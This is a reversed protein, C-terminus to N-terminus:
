SAYLPFSVRKCANPVAAAEAVSRGRKRRRSPLPTYSSSSPAAAAVAAASQAQAAAAVLAHAHAHVHAAVQAQAQAMVAAMGWQQAVTAADAVPGTISSPHIQSLPSLFPLSLPLGGSTPFPPLLSRSIPQTGPPPAPHIERPNLASRPSPAPQRSPRGQGRRNGGRLSSTTTIGVGAITAGGQAAAIREKGSGDVRFGRVNKSSADLIVEGTKGEVQPNGTVGRSGKGAVRAEKAAERMADHPGGMAIAASKTLPPTTSTSTTTATTSATTGTVCTIPMVPLSSRGSARTGSASHPGGTSGDLMIMISEAAELRHEESGTSSTTTSTTLGRDEHSHSAVTNQPTNSPLSCSNALLPM